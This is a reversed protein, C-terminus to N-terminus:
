FCLPKQLFDQRIRAKQRIRNTSIKVLVSRGRGGVRKAYFGLAKQKLFAVEMSAEEHLPYGTSFFMAVIM